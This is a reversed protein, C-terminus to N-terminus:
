FVNYKNKSINELFQRLCQAPQLPTLNFVKQPKAAKRSIRLKM